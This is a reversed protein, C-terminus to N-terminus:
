LKTEHKKRLLFDIYETGILLSNRAIIEKHTDDLITLRAEAVKPDWAEGHFYRRIEGLDEAMNHIRSSVNTPRATALYKYNTRCGGM